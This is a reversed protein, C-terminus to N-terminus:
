AGGTKAILIGLDIEIFLLHFFSVYWGVLWQGPHGITFLTLSNYSQLM